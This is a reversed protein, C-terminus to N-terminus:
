TRTADIRGIEGIYGAVADLGRRRSVRVRQAARELLDSRHDASADHWLACTGFGACM